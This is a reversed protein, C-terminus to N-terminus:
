TRLSRGALLGLVQPSLGFGRNIGRVFVDCLLDVQYREGLAAWMRGEDPLGNLLSEIGEEITTEAGQPHDLLWSGTRAVRKFQGSSDLVAQGKQQSRSPPRGMLRTIAAPDLDDGCVRLCLAAGDPHGGFWVTSEPTSPPPIRPM